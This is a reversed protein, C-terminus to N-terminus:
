LKVMVIILYDFEDMIIIQYENNEYICKSESNLIEKYGDQILQEKFSVSLLMSSIYNSIDNKYRLSIIGDKYNAKILELNINKEINGIKKYKNWINKPINNIVKEDNYKTYYYENKLEEFSITKITNFDVLNFKDQIEKIVEVNIAMSISSNISKSSNLGIVKGNKDFLPSGEDSETLPITSQVYDENSIVIGKQITLGTGSKSSLTVVPDEIKIDKKNSLKVSTGNKEKLKIVVVDTNPNATIIGDINYAKGLNDKITLYQANILAKEMFSWTTLVIGNNIFIGNANSIVKNNYYSRLYVINKINDNYIKKFDKDTLANLKNYNYITSLNSEYSSVMAMTSKTETDELENFYKNINETTEGFLYALRYTDDIKIFYYYIILNTKVIKYEIPNEKNEEKMKVDPLTLVSIALDGSITVRIDGYSNYIIGLENFSNFLQPIALESAVVYRYLPNSEDYGSKSNKDKPFYNYAALEFYDQKRKYYNEISENNNFDGLLLYTTKKTLDKIKSELEANENSLSHSLIYKKDFNNVVTSQKSNSSFSLSSSDFKFNLTLAFITVICLSFCVLTILIYYIKKM